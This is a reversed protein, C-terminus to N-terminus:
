IPNYKNNKSFYKLLTWLLTPIISIIMIYFSYEFIFSEVHPNNTPDIVFNVLQDRTIFINAVLVTILSIGFTLIWHWLKGHVLDFMKYFLFMILLPVLISLWGSIIYGSFAHAEFGEEGYFLFPSYKEHYLGFVDEILYAILYRM